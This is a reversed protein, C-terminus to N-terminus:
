LLDTVFRRNSAQKAVCFSKDPKQRTLCADFKKNGRLSILSERLYEMLSLENSAYKRDLFLQKMSWYSKMGQKALVDDQVVDSWTKCNRLRTMISCLEIIIQRRCIM